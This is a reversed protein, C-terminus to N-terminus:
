LMICCSPHTLYVTVTEIRRLNHTVSAGHWVTVSMTLTVFTDRRYSLEELSEMLGRSKECKLMEVARNCNCWIVLVFYDTDRAGNRYLETYGFCASQNVAQGTCKLFGQFFTLTM